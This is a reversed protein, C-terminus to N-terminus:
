NVPASKNFLLENFFIFVLAIIVIRHMPLKGLPSLHL